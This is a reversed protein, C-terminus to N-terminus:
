RSGRQNQKVDLGVEALTKDQFSRTLSQPNSNRLRLQIDYDSGNNREAM